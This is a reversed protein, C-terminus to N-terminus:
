VDLNSIDIQLKWEGNVKVWVVVYKGPMSEGGPLKMKLSGYAYAMDNSASVEAKIPEWSLEFGDTDVVKQFEKGVDEKGKTLKAGPPFQLVDDKLRQILWQANGAQLEACAKSELEIIENPDPKDSSM